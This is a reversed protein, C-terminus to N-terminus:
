LAALADKLSIKKVGAEALETWACDAKESDLPRVLEEIVYTHRISHAANLGSDLVASELPLGALYLHQVGRGLLYADLATSNENNKDSFAGGDEFDEYVCTRFVVEFLEQRLGEPFHSGPSGAICHAPQLTWTSHHLTIQEGATKGPHNEVFSLHSAPHWKKSALALPFAELAQNLPAIVDAAGPVPLSGNLHDNQVNIVLLAKM